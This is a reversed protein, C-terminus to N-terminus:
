YTTIPHKAYSEYLRNYEDVMIKKADYQVELTEAILLSVTKNDVSSVKPWIINQTIEERSPTPNLFKVFNTWLTLMRRMNTLDEEPYSSIPAATKKRFIYRLDEGHVVKGAGPVNVPKQGSRGMFGSYALEYLYVDTYKSQLQAQKIISRCFNNDSFYKICAGFHKHIPGDKVYIKRIYDGVKKSVVPDNLHMNYPVFLENHKDFTEMKEPLHKDQSLFLAEESNFGILTPVVNFKGTSFLQFAKQTLFADEHEPEIVGMFGFGKQLNWMNQNMDDGFLDISAKKIHTKKITKLFEMLEETSTNNENITSNIHSAFKYAISKPNNQLAWISLSSGSSQIAGRFLGKSNPGLLQFGVSGAGASEGYITVKDSDGGFYHINEQVWKLAMQQDKFGNNGPCTLDGTSFFGYFGLRYQIVVVIIDYDMLYFPGFRDISASGHLFAGGHIYVMVPLSVNTSNIASQPTYVNLYLCDEDETPSETSTAQVCMKKANRDDLVGDWNDPKQPVKFRLDGIPPKAFPIGQFANFTKNNITSMTQGLIKGNKIQLILEPHVSGIGLLIFILWM